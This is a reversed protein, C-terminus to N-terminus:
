RQKNVLACINRMNTADSNTAVEFLIESLEVWPGRLARTLMKAPYAQQFM